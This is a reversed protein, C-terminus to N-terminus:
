QDICRDEAAVVLEDLEDTWFEGNFQYMVQKPQAIEGVPPIPGRGAPPRRGRLLAVGLEHTILRVGEEASLLEETLREIERRLAGERRVEAAARGRAYMSILAQTLEPGLHGKREKIMREERSLSEIFLSLSRLGPRLSAASRLAKSSEPPVGNYLDDLAQRYRLSLRVAAQRAPGFHCLSRYTMAELIYREPAILKGYIPADLALLFGLARRPDGKLHHAWAIELLLEPDDPVRERVEEFYRLAEDVDRREMALRALSTMTDRWLNQLMPLKAEPSLEKLLSEFSKRAYKIKGRAVWKVADVYRAQLRYPSRPHILSFHRRSWSKREQRLSHLGQYYHVFSDLEAGMSSLEEVAIYRNILADEDYSEGEVIRKIGEIAEPILGVDRQSSAIELYWASAAYTLGMGEAGRALLRLTRDYRPDDEDTNKLYYWAAQASAEHHGSQAREVGFLFAQQHDKPIEVFLSSCGSCLLGVCLSMVVRSLSRANPHVHAREGGRPWTRQAYSKKTEIIM